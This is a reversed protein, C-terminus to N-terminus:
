ISPAKAAELLSPSDITSALMKQQLKIVGATAVYIGSAGKFQQDYNCCEAVGGVMGNEM